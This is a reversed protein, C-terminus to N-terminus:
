QEGACGIEVGACVLVVGACEIEAKMRGDGGERLLPFFAQVLDVLVAM